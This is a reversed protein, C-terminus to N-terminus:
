IISKNKWNGTLYYIYSLLFGVFWGMPIAWWIGIEGFRDSLIWAAPIRIVWLAILSIFMPILTDGAGRMVGSITFMATFVIYFAGVITLYQTGIRIVEPDNTFLDVIVHSFILIVASVIISILSSMKLTAIFGAKVRDIKNAGINQGVFTALAAAFNMAALSALSDIRIAVSYAAIVDTGFGNVISILAMMGAAVFTQQLGTPLGIKLSKKFIVKDFHLNKFSFRVIKHTKNLYIIATIFAGGQAIVSAIAVGAIGWKLVLVFLLDLGINIFTSIILFYLPTKSDGLGRLIASTGNFGFSVVVGGMFINFYTTAQPIIEEPLKLLRFIDESFYIGAISIVISACFLFIFLTNITRKVKEIDKAGFYQAIVITSGSAIGIILSLFAFIIPFSAGVAALAEKGIFNGVIISDVINYLQQFVNGLLMPLAFKLILSSEKGTTLDRM